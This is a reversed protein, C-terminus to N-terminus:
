AHSREEPWGHLPVITARVDNVADCFRSWDAMMRARKALLPGRQYAAESQDALLHALAHECVERPYNTSEGAWDRFSSRFGHTTVTRCNQKPDVYGRGNSKLAAAHMRRILATLAMDTLRGGRPAPFVLDNGAIRPLAELLAIASDSLPIVHEKEAKMRGPPITWTRAQFDFEGWTAGLAEGSRCATLIVFELARPTVGHHQRLDAM